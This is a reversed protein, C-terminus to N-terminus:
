ESVSLRHVLRDFHFIYVRNGPTLQKNAYRPNTIRGRANGQAKIDREPVVQLPALISVATALDVHQKTRSLRAVRVGFPGLQPHPPATEGDSGEEPIAYRIVAFPHRVEDDGTGISVVVFATVNGMWVKHPLKGDLHLTRFPHGEDEMAPEADPAELAVFVPTQLQIGGSGGGNRWSTYQRYKTHVTVTVEMPDWPPDDCAVLTHAHDLIWTKVDSDHVGPARVERSCIADKIDHLLEPPANAISIHKGIFKGHLSGGGSTETGQRRPPVLPDLPHRSVDGTRGLIGSWSNIMIEVLLRPREVRGSSRFPLKLLSLHSHEFPATDASKPLGFRQINEKLHTLMHQKPKQRRLVATIAKRVDPPIRAATGQSELASEAAALGSPWMEMLNEVDETIYHLTQEDLRRRPHSWLWLSVRRAAEVARLLPAAVNENKGWCSIFIALPIGELVLLTTEKATLLAKRLWFFDTVNASLFRRAGARWRNDDSNTGSETSPPKPANLFAALLLTTAGGAAIDLLTPIIVWMEALVGGAFLHLSDFGFPLVGSNGLISQFEEDIYPTYTPPPLFRVHSPLAAAARGRSDEWKNYWSAMESISHRSSPMTLKFDEGTRDCLNCKGSTAGKFHILHAVEELDGSVIGVRLIGRAVVGCEEVGDQFRLLIGNREQGRLFSLIVRHMAQLLSIKAYGWDVAQSNSMELRIPFRGLPDQSRSQLMETTPLVSLLFTSGPAQSSAVFPSSIYIPHYSRHGFTSTAVRSADSYITLPLVVPVNELPVPVPAGDAEVQLSNVISRGDGTTFYDKLASKTATIFWESTGFNRYDRAASDDVTVAGTATVSVRFRDRQLTCTRAIRQAAVLPNVLPCSVTGKLGAAAIPVTVHYFEPVSVRRDSNQRTRENAFARRVSRQERARLPKAMEEIRTDPAKTPTQAAAFAAALEGLADAVSSDSAHSAMKAEIVQPAIELGVRLGNRRQAYAVDPSLSGFDEAIRREAESVAAVRRGPGLTASDSVFDRGLMHEQCRQGEAIAEQASLCRLPPQNSLVESTAVDGEASAATAAADIGADEEVCDEEEYEDSDHYIAAALSSAAPVNSDSQSGDSDDDDGDDQQASQFAAGDAAEDVDPEDSRARKHPRIDTLSSWPREVHASQEEAPVAEDVARDLSDTGFGPPFFNARRRVQKGTSFRNPIVRGTDAISVVLQQDDSESSWELALHMMSRSPLSVIPESSLYNSDSVTIHPHSTAPTATAALTASASGSDARLEEARERYAVFREFISSESDLSGCILSHVGLLREMGRFHLGCDTCQVLVDRNGRKGRRHHALHRAWGAESEFGESRVPRQIGCIRCLRQFPVSEM